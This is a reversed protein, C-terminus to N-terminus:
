ARHTHTHTHQIWQTSQSHTHTHTQTHRHTDTHTQTHTHTLKLSTLKCSKLLGRLPPKIFTVVCMQGRAMGKRFGIVDSPIHQVLEDAVACYFVLEIGCGVMEVVERTQQYKFRECRNRCYKDM